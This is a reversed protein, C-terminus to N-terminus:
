PRLGPWRDGAADLEAVLQTPTDSIIGDVGLALLTRMQAPDNITWVHVALGDDHAREVFRDDVVTTDGLTAPVQLAVADTTPAPSGSHV